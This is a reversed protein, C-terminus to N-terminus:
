KGEEGRSQTATGTLGRLRLTIPSAGKAAFVIEVDDLATGDPMFVAITVYDGDGEESDTNVPTDKTGFRVGTPLRDEVIIGHKATGDPDPTNSDMFPTVTNQADPNTVTGNAGSRSGDPAVTTSGVTGSPGGPGNSTGPVPQHRAPDYPEIIFKGTNPVVAFRYPRGHEVAQHRCDAWRARVMDAAASVKSSAFLGQFVLPTALGAIILMVTVVLIMEFLTYGRRM